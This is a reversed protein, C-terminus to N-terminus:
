AVVEVRLTKDAESAIFGFVQLGGRDIPETVSEFNDLCVPASVGYFESLTRIIDLGAHIRGATNLGQSYPVSKYLPECVEEVGGNIQDRFLQWKVYRFKTNVTDTVYRARAKVYEDILFLDAEITELNDALGKREAKLQTIRANMQDLMDFKALSASLADLEVQVVGAEEKAKSVAEAITPIIDNMQAEAQAIAIVNMKYEADDNHTQKTSLIENMRGHAAELEKTALDYEAQKVALDKKLQALRESAEALEKNLADVKARSQKLYEGRDANFQKIYADYNAQATLIKEAPLDQGCTPCGTPQNNPRPPDNKRFDASKNERTIQATVEDIKRIALNINSEITTSEQSARARKLNASAIDSEYSSLAFNQTQKYQVEIEQQRTLLNGKNIRLAEYAESTGAQNAIRNKEQLLARRSAIRAEYDQKSGELVPLQGNLEDIRAPIQDLQKNIETRTATLVKRRDEISLGDLVEPIRKFSKDTKIIDSEKIAGALEFLVKRRDQWSMIEAFYHPTTLIKFRAEPMIEEVKKRYEGIQIPVGNVYCDTTHGSMETKAQGRPTTWKESYVKRLTLVKFDNTRFSGIVEHNLYHIPEGTAKDLTKIGFSAPSKGMTDKDFLLWTLADALTTKGTENAGYINASLENPNFKFATIGKFNKLELSQLRM